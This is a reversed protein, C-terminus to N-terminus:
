TKYVPSATSGPWETKVTARIYLFDEKQAHHGYKLFFKFNNILLQLFPQRAKM